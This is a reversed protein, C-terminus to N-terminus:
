TAKESKKAGTLALYGDYQRSVEAEISEHREHVNPYISNTDIDYKYYKSILSYIYRDNFNIGLIDAVESVTRTEIEYGGGVDIRKYNAKM